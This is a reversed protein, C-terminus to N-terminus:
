LACDRILNAVCIDTVGADVVDLDVCSLLGKIEEYTVIDFTVSLDSFSQIVRVIYYFSCARYATTIITLAARLSLVQINALSLLNDM